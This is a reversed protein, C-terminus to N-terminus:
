RGQLFDLITPEGGISKSTAEPITQALAKLLLPTTLGIQFVLIANKPELGYLVSLIGGIVVMIATIIWYKPRRLYTPLNASKRLNFWTLAEAAIGGFCGTLFIAWFESILM